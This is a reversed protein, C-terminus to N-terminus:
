PYPWLAIVASAASCRAGWRKESVGIVGASALASIDDAGFGIERMVKSTHEGIRPPDRRNKHREGDLSM